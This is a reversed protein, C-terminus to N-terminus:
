GWHQELAAIGLLSLWGRAGRHNRRVETSERNSRQEGRHPRPTSSHKIPPQLSHPLGAGDSAQQATFDSSTGNTGEADPQKSVDWLRPLPRTSGALPPLSALAPWALCATRRVGLPSIGSPLSGAHACRRFLERCFFFRSAILASDFYM